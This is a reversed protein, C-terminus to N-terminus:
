VNLSEIWSSFQCESVASLLEPFLLASMLTHKLRAFFVRILNCIHPRLNGVSGDHYEESPAIIVRGKYSNHMCGDNRPIRALSLTMNARNDLDWYYLIEEQRPLLFCQTYSLIDLNPGVLM